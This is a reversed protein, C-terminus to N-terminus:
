RRRYCFGAAVVAVIMGAWTAPEPVSSGNLDAGTIAAIGSGTLANQFMALDAIDTLGDFNLDGSAFSNLDGVRFGDVLNPLMWGAIFDAKDGADIDGSNNIDGPVGSLIFDAYANTTGFDLGGYNVSPLAPPPDTHPASTGMVFMELDDLIGTYFEANGGSFAQDDGGTNSGLVLPAIDGGNYAGNAAAVAIGNVYMRAGGSGGSVRAVMVHHWTNTTAAATSAVDLSGIRMSFNGDANIRLGHQNTDMVLSQVGTGTPRVWLQFGRNSIGDYNLTGGDNGVAPFGVASFSTSPLGLRPGRLYQQSAGNFEVGLGGVGDPRGTITRYVPGGFAPLDVLQNMGMEGANDFTIGVTSNNTAAPSDGGDGLRYLRDNVAASTTSAAFLTLAVASTALHTWRITNM